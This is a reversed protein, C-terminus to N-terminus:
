DAEIYFKDAYENPSIDFKKQFCKSFYKPSNFGVKYAIQSINIKNQELMQAASKLRIEHIFENPTFNTWAKIKNFLMTRSVGLETCFQPIDFQTNGINIEVIQFAKKLMETDVTSLQVEKPGFFDEKIFKNKLRATSEITNKIRLKFELLNFPKSIYDDAGSDLGEFKYVLSSRSTLLIVPIHSTKPNEKIKSCLETGVMEPMIVDSIVLDPVYKVAKKFGTKGNDATIVNYEDKLLNCIFNRLIKHDEVILITPKSDDHVLNAIDDAFVQVPRNKVQSTYLSIDDSIKFDKIIENESLHNKGTPLTLTFIVGINEKNVVIISGHHLTVLNKVISLGIGTGKSYQKHEQNLIPVEYFLEFVNTIHEPAIGVGSDEIEFRFNSAEKKLRIHITGGAPTYRFANSILNYFVRELKNRDFYIYIEDDSSEFTYNYGGDKAFETFSLYIEKTFKVINGNAAELKSLNSELKRFDMLRNILDLLHTTSSEMVLLKKYMDNSGSYQAIIQQLPGSILTLPTRFEHSINTFFELKAQNNEKIREAALQELELEQKLKEKSKFVWVLGYIALGALIFYALIAWISLWPAPLVEIELVTPEKNWLGDNNAGLIELTYSGANQIAYSVEPNNTTTWNNELGVLRYRYQNKQSRVFNPISFSITFNAKDYPLIIKKTYILNKDLIESTDNPKIRKNQICLTTLLVKPVYHNIAIKNSDFYSVGSPSGFYFQSSGVQLSANDNFENNVVGDKQDYITSTEKVTNYKVIGHNTGLWLNNKTDEQISHIATIIGNKASLTVDKFVGNKLYFLGKAKTGIWITGKKNKFITLIDDGSLTKPNYFYNKPGQKKSHKNTTSLVNLGNQTGVWIHDNEILLTRIRNNTLSSNDITFSIHTNTKKDFRILGKGFTGLWLIGNKEEKIAYVGTEKLLQHLTIPVFTADVTNTTPNYAKLGDLFSGILLHGSSDFFLSKINDSPTTNIQKDFLYSTKGSTPNFVTIGGGETGMYINDKKDSVIASVVDFSLKKDKNYQNFNTFNSNSVDWLNVGKYYCGMWVSGKVDTFLAKIKDINPNEDNHITQSKNNQDIITVGNYSGIWLANNKDLTLARIDNDIKEFGKKNKLSSLTQKQNDYYFLGKHKTGIWLNDDKDSIITQVFFTDPTLINKFSLKGTHDFKAECLGKSTGIYIHGKPTKTISLIYNSPLSNKNNKQKYFSKFRSTKINFVSLGKSTGIWIENNVQTICWIVNNSLSQPDNTHFYRKFSDKIPDYQNLGNYTGVWIQGNTDESISLIDNNSLSLSDKDENRYVTFKSGDYKNLGDRTGLWMQGLKDQHIAIVASQSLGDRTSINKFRYTNNQAFLSTVFFSLIILVIKKM